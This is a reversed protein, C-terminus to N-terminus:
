GERQLAKTVRRYGYGPFALVIREVADRLAVDREAQTPADPRGYYWSRGVGLLACLRRVSLEPHDQGARAIM